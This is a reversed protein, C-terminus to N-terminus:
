GEPRKNVAWNSRTSKLRRKMREARMREWMRPACNWMASVVESLSSQPSGTFGLDPARNGGYGNVPHCKACGKKEFFLKAGLHPDGVWLNTWYKNAHRNEWYLVGLLLASAALAAAIWLLLQRKSTM